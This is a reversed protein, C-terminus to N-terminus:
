PTHKVAGPTVLTIWTRGPNLKLPQGDPLKFVYPSKRDPKEWIGEVLGGDQFVFVPGSGTTQYVSYIGSQSRNAVIAVVVKPSAQAGSREDIHPQGGMVRKYSNTNGDYDYRVNYLPRSIALDIGRATPPNLPTEKDKRPYGTFTSATYGRANHRELLKARSTYLNHPAFRSSVRQYAGANPSHDIDKIGENRIQALGEASGGAHAIAADFPVLFDLYYPRVSRVPGIYDPQDEMYLALFRTIGGESIAEFVIGADNLGAQPRADPSNEIMVGTVPLKNLEIPIEVGTLRSPETTPPPPPPPEEQKVVPAPPPPDKKFIFYSATSILLVGAIGAIVYQKRTLRRFWPKGARPTNDDLAESGSPRLVPIVDSSEPVALANGPTDPRRPPM